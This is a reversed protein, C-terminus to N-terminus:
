EYEKALQYAKQIDKQQTAKDGGCLLITLFQGRQMFYLRYGPGYDIKAESIGHGVPACVGFNGLSM